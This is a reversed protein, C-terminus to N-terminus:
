TRAGIGFPDHWARAVKPERKKYTNHEEKVAFYNIITKKWLVTSQKYGKSKVVLDDEAMETLLQDARKATVNLKEAIHEATVPNKLGKLYDFIVQKRREKPMKKV